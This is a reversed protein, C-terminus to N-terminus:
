LQICEARSDAEYNGNQMKLEILCDAKSLARLDGSGHYEIADVYGNTLLKGPLYQTMEKKTQFVDALLKATFRSVGGKRGAVVCLFPKVLVHFSVTAAVPNGPLAFVLVKGKKWASCPKGPKMKVKNFLSSFGLDQLVSITYDKEGVSAGGSILLVQYNKVAKSIKARLLSPTDSVIGLNTSGFGIELLSSALMYGNSNYIQNKLKSDFPEVIESGTSLIAVEPLDFVEHETVGLSAFLGIKRSCIQVGAELLCDGTRFDEGSYAINAKDRNLTTIEDEMRKVYEQRIVMKTGPPVPAGTMIQICEGSNIQHNSCGGAFVSECVSYRSGVETIEALAYGDMTSRDFEPFSFPAIVPKATVYGIAGLIQRVSSTQTELASERLLENAENISIM